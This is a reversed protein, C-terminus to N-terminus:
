ALLFRKVAPIALVQAWNDRLLGKRCTQELIDMRSLSGKARDLAERGFIVARVTAGVHQIDNADIYARIARVADLWDLHKGACLKEIEPDIPWDILVFRDMTAGDLVNRASYKANAGTDSNDGAICYFDPHAKVYGKEPIPAYGGALADNLCGLADAGNMTIEDILYVGGHEWAKTFPTEIRGQPGIFGLIGFSDVVQPQSYLTLGKLKSFARAASSKGSSAPGILLVHKKMELWAVMKPFLFHEGEVSLSSVVDGITFVVPRRKELTDIRNNLGLLEKEHRSMTSNADIFAQGFRRSANEEALMRRLIDAINPDAKADPAAPQEAVMTAEAYDLDADFPNSGEGPVKAPKYGGTGMRGDGAQLRQVKAVCARMISPSQSLRDILGNKNFTGNKFALGAEKSAQTIHVINARNLFERMEQVELRGYDDM